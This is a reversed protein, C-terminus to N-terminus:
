EERGHATPIPSISWSAKSPIKTINQNACFESGNDTTITKVGNEIHPPPPRMAAKATHPM